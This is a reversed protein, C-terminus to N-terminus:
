EPIALDRVLRARVDRYEQGNVVNTIGADVGNEKLWARLKERHSADAKLWRDIRGSTADPGYTTAQLTPIGALKAHTAQPRGLAGDRLIPLDFALYGIVLPRPFTEVLTVGRSSAAAVKLTGGPLANELAPAGARVSASTAEENTMSVNVSGTLYVRTILRLQFHREADSGAAKVPGYPQLLERNESAWALLQKELSALDVGYTYADAITITGTASGTGMLSLGVPVGQVPLALNIGGGRRVAFAYTPFAARPAKEWGSPQLQWDRPPGGNAGIGYGNRYFEKYNKPELRVLLQDLPLFGKDEYVAIQDEISTQVLFVDGPQLDETLPYVPLVQSARVLLAWDKAVRALEESKSSTTCGAMAAAVPLIWSVRM